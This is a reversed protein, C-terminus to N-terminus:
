MMAKRIIDKGKVTKVAVIECDTRKLTSRILRARYVIGFEGAIFLLNSCRFVMAICYIKPLKPFSSIVLYICMSTCARSMCHSLYNMYIYYVLPLNDVSTILKWSPDMCALSKVYIAQTVGRKTVVERALM